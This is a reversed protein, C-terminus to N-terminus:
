GLQSQQDVSTALQQLGAQLDPVSGAEWKEQFQTLADPAVTGAPTLTYFHSAPNAFVDLFTKFLPDNSLTPDKLSDYTSPVNKLENALSTLAETNTTLFNVLAWAEAPHQVTRPIGVVTGGIRGAGYISSMDDAVPVPATGYNIHAQDFQILSERWEGDFLMAVKGTEFANQASGEAGANAQLTQLNKYGLADILSKQWRFMEAWKPDSAFASKGNADYWSAGWALGDYLNPNEYLSSLPDFGAVKLSGDQNKVTLKKADDAFETMTKPPSTIGAQAFMTKNYYLGYADTLIPLTCQVGNYSTYKLAGPTFTKTVDIGSADIYPKLDTFAGTSCYKGVNDPGADIAVDITQGSQIGRTYDNFSKGPVLNVHIWPYQANFLKIVDTLQALEHETFYDWVTLEVSAHSGGPSLTTVASSTTGGGASCATVILVFLAASIVGLWSKM